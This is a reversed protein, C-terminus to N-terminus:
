PPLTARGTETWSAWDPRGNECAAAAAGGWPHPAAIQEVAGAPRACSCRMARM